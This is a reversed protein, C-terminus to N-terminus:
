FFRYIFDSADAGKGYMGFILFILILFAYGLWRIIFPLKSYSLLMDKENRLYDFVIIIFLIIALWIIENISIGAVKLNIAEFTFIKQGMIALDNLSSYKFLQWLLTVILFNVLCLFIKIFSYKKFFNFYKAVINEGIMILGHAFGWLFFNFTNGHWLGSLVFVVLVAFYMRTKGFRSGGLPIYVYDKFFSGLSIHWRRWFEKLSTAIYPTAFNKPLSFGLIRGSGIAIHSYADFDLYIQWAYM